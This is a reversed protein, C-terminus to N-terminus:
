IKIRAKCTGFDMMGNFLMIETEPTIDSPHIDAEYIIEKDLLFARRTGKLLPLRPTLWKGDKLIAVNTYSTDTIMNNRVILVEDCDAKKSALSQLLTRNTSKYRYDIDNCTVFRLTRINKPSYPAYSIESIGNADYVVRVKLCDKHVDPNIVEQLNIIDTSSFLERRTRNLRENHYDILQIVGNRACM